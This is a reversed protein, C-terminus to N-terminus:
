RDSQRDTKRERKRRDTDRENDRYGRQMDKERKGGGGGGVLRSERERKKGRERNRKDGIPLEHCLTSVHAVTAPRNLANSKEDKGHDVAAQNSGCFLDSIVIM